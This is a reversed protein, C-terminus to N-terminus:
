ALVKTDFVLPLVLM